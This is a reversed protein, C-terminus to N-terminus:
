GTKWKWHIPRQTQLLIQYIMIKAEERHESSLADRNWGWILPYMVKIRFVYSQKLNNLKRSFMYYINLETYNHAHSTFPFM